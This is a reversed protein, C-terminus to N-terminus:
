VQHSKLYIHRVEFLKFFVSYILFLNSLIDIKHARKVTKMLFIRWRQSVIQLDEKLLFKLYALIALRLVVSKRGHESSMWETYNCLIYMYLCSHLLGKYCKGSYYLDIETLEMNSTLSNM